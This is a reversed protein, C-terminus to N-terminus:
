IWRFNGIQKRGGGVLLRYPLLEECSMTLEAVHFRRVYQHARREPKRSQPGGVSEIEDLDDKKDNRHRQKDAPM